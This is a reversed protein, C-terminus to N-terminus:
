ARNKAEMLSVSSNRFLSLDKGFFHRKLQKAYSGSVDGERWLSLPLLCGNADWVPVKENFSYFISDYNSVDVTEKGGFLVGEATTSVTRISIDGTKRDLCLVANINVADACVREYYSIGSSFLKTSQTQYM